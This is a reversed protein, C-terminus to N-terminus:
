PELAPLLRGGEKALFLAADLLGYGGPLRRLRAGPEVGMVHLGAVRAARCVAEGLGVGKLVFYALAASFVDGAGISPRGPDGGELVCAGAEGGAAYIAGLAGMTVIRAADGLSADMLELGWARYGLDEFSARYLVAAPLARALLGLLRADTELLGDGRPVRVFGQLDVVVVRHSRAAEEALSPALEWYVPSLLAAGCLPWRPRCPGPARLLRSLRRGGQEEHVFVAPPDSDCGRAVRLGPLLRAAREAYFRPGGPREAGGIVDITDASYVAVCPEM